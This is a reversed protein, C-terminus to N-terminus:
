QRRGYRDGPGQGGVGPGEQRAAAGGTGIHITMEAIMKPLIVWHGNQERNTVEARVVVNQGELGRMLIPNIFVIRGTATVTKGGGAAVKITVECGDLDAPAYSAIPVLGEVQLADLRVLRLIPDGPNVWEKEDRFQEQVVGAFPARLTRREIAMDAAELEAKQTWADLEALQRDHVAKEIGFLSRKYELRAKRLDTATVANAVARNTAELTEVEAKAVDSSARSFREEVDNRARELAARLKYRAIERAKEAESTEIRVLVDESRVRAGEKVAVQDLIGAETAHLELEDVLDVVCADPLKFDEAHTAAFPTAALCALLAVSLLRAPM